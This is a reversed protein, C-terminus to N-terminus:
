SLEVLQLGLLGFVGALGGRIALLGEEFADVGHAGLQGYGDEGVVIADPCPAFGADGGHFMPDAAVAEELNGRTAPGVEDGEIVQGDAIVAAAVEVKVGRGFGRFLGASDGGVALFFNPKGCGGSAGLNTAMLANIAAMTRAMPALKATASM